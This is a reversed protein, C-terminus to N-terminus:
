QAHNSQNSQHSPSTFFNVWPWVLQCIHHGNREFPNGSWLTSGRREVCSGSNGPLLWQPRPVKQPFTPQAWVKLVTFSERLKQLLILKKWVEKWPSFPSLPLRIRGRKVRLPNQKAKSKTGRIRMAKFVLIQVLDWQTKLMSKQHELSLGHNRQRQSGNNQRCSAKLM